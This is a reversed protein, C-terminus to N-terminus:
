RFGFRVDLRSKFDGPGVVESSQRRLVSAPAQKVPCGNRLYPRHKYNRPLSHCKRHIQVKQFAPLVQEVTTRKASTHSSCIIHPYGNSVLDTLSKHHVNALLGRPWCSEHAPFPGLEFASRADKGDGVANTVTECLPCDRRKWNPRYDTSTAYSRLDM